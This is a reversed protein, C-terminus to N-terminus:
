VSATENTVADAEIRNCREKVRRRDLGNNSGPDNQFRKWFHLTKLVIHNWQDHLRRFQMSKFVTQRSIQQSAFHRKRHPKWSMFGNRNSVADTYVFGKDTCVYKKNKCKILNAKERKISIFPITTKWHLLFVHSLCGAHLVLSHSEPRARTKGISYVEAKAKANVERSIEKM